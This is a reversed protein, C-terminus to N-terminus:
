LAAVERSSIRYSDILKQFQVASLRAKSRIQRRQRFARPLELLADRWARWLILAISESGDYYAALGQGKRKLNWHWFYRKLTHFPSLLVAKMPFNRAVVLIRNREIYYAKIPSAKTSSHSYRHEIIANPVYVCEWANWRARLGLDTDECYLFFNEEFLGIEDLMARRYLAACGSPLLAHTPRGGNAPAAQGHGRQKSSGDPAILMGTSDLTGSSQLRIQPACMGIEYRSEMAWVLQDLCKADLVTDDNLALIFDSTSARIGQNIAAGYGGNTDNRILKEVALSRSLPGNAVVITQFDRFTQAELSALCDDLAGDAKYTPIVVTLKM